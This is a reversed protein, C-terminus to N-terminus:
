GQLPPINIAADDRLFFLGTLAADRYLFIPVPIGAGYPHCRQLVMDLSVFGAGYPHCRQLVIIMCMDKGRLPLMETSGHRLFHFWGRLPSMETSFYVM